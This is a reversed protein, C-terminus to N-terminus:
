EVQFKLIAAAAVKFHRFIDIHGLLIFIALLHMVVMRLHVIMLFRFRFSVFTPFLIEDNVPLFPSKSGFKTCLYLVVSRRSPVHWIWKGSFVLNAAAAM